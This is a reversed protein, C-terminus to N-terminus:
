HNTKRSANKLRNKRQRKKRYDAGFKVTTINGKHTVNRFRIKSEKLTKIFLEHKEEETLEKTEGSVSETEEPTLTPSVSIEENKSQETQFNEVFKEYQPSQETLGSVQIQLPKEDLMPFEDIRGEKEPKPTFIVGENKESM